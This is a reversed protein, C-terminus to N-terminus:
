VIVPGLRHGLGRPHDDLRVIVDTLWAYPSTLAAPRVFRSLIAGAVRTVIPTRPAADALHPSKVTPGFGM